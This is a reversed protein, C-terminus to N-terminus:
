SLEYFWIMISGGEGGSCCWLKKIFEDWKNKVYNNIICNGYGSFEFQVHEM